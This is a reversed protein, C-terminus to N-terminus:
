KTIVSVGSRELEKIYANKEDLSARSCKFGLHSHQKPDHMVASMKSVKLGNAQCFRTLNHTFETKGSPTVIRYVNKVKEVKVIGLAAEIPWGLRLRGRLAQLDINHTRAAEALSPYSIGDRVIAKYNSHSSLRKKAGVIEELTWGSRIRYTVTSHSFKFHNSLQRANEFVIGNHSVPFRFEKRGVLGTAQEITWGADLRMRLTNENVKFASALERLSSYGTGKVVLERRKRNKTPKPPDALELAQETTWGSRLRETVRSSPLGFHIAAEKISHFNLSGVQLQKKNNPHRDQLSFADLLSWGGRLRSEVKKYHLGLIRCAERLSGYERGALSFGTWTNRPRIEIAEELTWGCQNVRYDFVRPDIEFEKCLDVISPYERGEVWVPKLRGTRRIPPRVLGAAEAITWGSQVRKQVTVEKLGYEDAIESLSWYYSGNLEYLTKGPAIAGGRNQNYGEPALTRLQEIWKVEKASLEGLTTATDIQKFEFAELGFTRIAAWITQDSGDGRFAAAVHGVIRRQLRRRTLGVYGMGNKKNRTYYVIGRVAKEQWNM